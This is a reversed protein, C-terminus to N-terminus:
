LEARFYCYGKAEVCDKIQEGLKLRAYWKLSKSVNIKEDFKNKFYQEIAENNLIDNEYFFSDLGKKAKGLKEYCKKIGRNIENIQIEGFHYVIDEPQGKSGFFDADNSKQIGFLFKGEIDGRYYRGM